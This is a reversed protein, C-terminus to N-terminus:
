DEKIINDFDHKGIEKKAYYFFTGISYGYSHKLIETYQRDTEEYDYCDAQQSIEHAYERGYEGFISAVSCLIEFWQGYDGTIDIRANCIEQLTEIFKVKVEDGTLEVGLVQATSRDNPPLVYDYVKAATNIYPVPDYSVFRLRNVNSCKRDIRIGCRKFDQEIARFYETHKDPDAIPILCFFGKGGVSRACYSVHPIQHISDKFRDFNTIDKNDKEDIDICIFGSHRQLGDATKRSFVGAPIFAPLNKKLNARKIPDTETRIKEVSDKWRDSLLLTSLRVKKMEGDKCTITPLFTAETDFISNRM